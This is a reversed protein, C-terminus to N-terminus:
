NKKLSPGPGSQVEFPRPMNPVNRVDAKSIMKDAERREEHGATLDRTYGWSVNHIRKFDKAGCECKDIHNHMDESWVIAEEKVEGCKKCEFDFIPM